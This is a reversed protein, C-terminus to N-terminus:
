AITHVDVYVSIFCYLIIAFVMSLIIRQAFKLLNILRTFATPGNVRAEVPIIQIIKSWISGKRNLWFSRMRKYQKPSTYYNSEEDTKWAHPTHFSLSNSLTHYYSLLHVNQVRRAATEQKLVLYIATPWSDASLKKPSSNKVKEWEKIMVAMVHMASFHFWTQKTMSKNSPLQTCALIYLFLM